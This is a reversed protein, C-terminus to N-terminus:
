DCRRAITSGRRRLGLLASPRRKGSTATQWNHLATFVRLPQRFSLTPREPIRAIRV